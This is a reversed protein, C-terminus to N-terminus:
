RFITSQGMLELFIKRATDALQLEVEIFLKRIHQAHILVGDAFLAKFLHFDFVTGITGKTSEM